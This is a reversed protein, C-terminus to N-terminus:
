EREAEEFPKLKVSLYHWVVEADVGTVMTLFDNEPNRQNVCPIPRYSMPLLEQAAHLSIFFQEFPNHAEAVYMTNRLFRYDSQLEKLAGTPMTAYSGGPSASPTISPSEASNTPSVKLNHNLAGGASGGGSDKEIKKHVVESRKRADNSLVNSVAGRNWRIMRCIGSKWASLMICVHVLGLKERELTQKASLRSLFQLCFMSTTGWIDGVQQDNDFDAQIAAEIFLITARIYLTFARNYSKQNFLSDARHKCNRAREKKETATGNGLSSPPPTPPIVVATPTQQQTSTHAATIVLSPASAANNNSNTNTTIVAPPPTTVPKVATEVLEKKNNNVIPSTKQVPKIKKDENLKKRKAKQQQEQDSDSNQEGKKRKKKSSSSSASTSKRKEKKEKKEEEKIREQEELKKKEEELRLLEKEKREEELRKEEALRKEEEIRKREEEEQQEKKLRAAAERETKLKDVLLEKSSKTPRPAPPPSPKIEVTPKPYLYEDTASRSNNRNPKPAAPETVPKIVSASPADNKKSSSKKSSTKKKEDLLQQLESINVEMLPSLIPPRNFEELIKLFATPSQVAIEEASLSKNIKKRLSSSKKPKHSSSSEGDLGNSSQSKRAPVQMLSSRVSSAFNSGEFSGYQQLPLDTESTSDDRDDM